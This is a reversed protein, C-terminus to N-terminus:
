LEIGAALVFPTVNTGTYTYTQTHSLIYIHIDIHTHSLSLTYTYTQTHSLIYIHIDIHTLSLTHTYICISGM